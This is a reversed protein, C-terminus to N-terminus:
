MQQMRGGDVKFENALSLRALNPYPGGQVAAAFSEVM